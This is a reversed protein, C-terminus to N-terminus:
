RSDPRRHRRGLSACASRITRPRLMMDAGTSDEAHGGLRGAWDIMLLRRREFVDSRVYAAEMKNLVVHALAADIVERPHDTQKAGWDRFSSAM